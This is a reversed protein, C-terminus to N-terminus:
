PRDSSDSDGIVGGRGSGDGGGTTGTGTESGSGGFNRDTRRLQKRFSFALVVVALALGALVLFLPWGPRYDEDTPLDDAVIVATTLLSTM